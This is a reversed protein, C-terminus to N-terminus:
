AVGKEKLYSMAEGVTRLKEADADPITVDFAEELGMILEAVDLSDMGVDEVFRTQPGIAERAIAHSEFCRDRLWSLVDQDKVRAAASM